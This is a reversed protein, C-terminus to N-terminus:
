VCFSYRSIEGVGERGGEGRSALLHMRAGAQTTALTSSHAKGRPKTFCGQAKGGSRACVVHM